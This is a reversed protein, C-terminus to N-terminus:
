YNEQFIGKTFLKPDTKLILITYQFLYVHVCLFHKQQKQGKM